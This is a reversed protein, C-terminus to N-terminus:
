DGLFGNFLGVRGSQSLRKDKDSCVSPSSGVPNWSEAMEVEWGALTM